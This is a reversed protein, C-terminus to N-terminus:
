ETEYGRKKLRAQSRAVEDESLGMEMAVTALPAAPARQIQEWMQRDLELEGFVKKGIDEVCAMADRASRVRRYSGGTSLALKEFTRETVEDHEPITSPLMALSYLTINAEEVRSAMSLLTLGTPDEQPFRDPWPERSAGCGHPPADGVLVLIRYARPRWDFAVAELLGAFVAEAADLNEPPSAVGLGQLVKQMQQLDHTLPYVDVSAPYDHYGALGVRLEAQKRQALSRLMNVMHSRAQHIFPTMSNTLDVCFALDLFSLDAEV